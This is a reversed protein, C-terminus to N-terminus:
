GKSAFAIVNGDFDACYAVVDGWNRLRLSSIGRAGSNLAKEYCSAPDGVYLYIECKPINTLGNPNDMKEELIKFIGDGPMLGLIVNENIKFETMGPVDLVPEEGLVSRYFDRSKKQEKVYIILMVPNEVLGM